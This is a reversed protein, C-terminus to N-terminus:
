IMGEAYRRFVYCPVASWGHCLSGAMHFDNAGNETEYLTTDGKIVMDGFTNKIDELVFGLYKKGSKLLADYAWVKNSLSLNILDKRKTLCSLLIDEAEPLCNTMLALAQPLQAYVSKKGNKNVAAFAQRENDYFMKKITEKIFPVKDGYVDSIKLASCMASMQQLTYLYLINLCSEYYLPLVNDRFILGGDLGEKWEYFNWYEKESFVPILGTTDRRSEFSEMIKQVVPLIKVAFKSDGTHRYNETFAIVYYLSFSPITVGVRAPFCLELLGDERLGEAMLRLNSQAYNNKEFVYYGFLMQNRSDMAYLSQERWPCDEYHEHMCNKLTRIGNRDIINFLGDRINFSRQRVVRETRLVRCDHLLMEGCPCCIQLYRLGLRRLYGCWVNRGRHARYTFAFNRDDIFSRVRLDLLHEGFAVMVDTDESVELDLCVYGSVEKGMDVIAYVGYSESKLRWGQANPLLAKEAFDNGMADLPKHKLFAESVTQAAAPYFKNFLVEGQACMVVRDDQSYRLREDPRLFMKCEKTVVTSRSFGDAAGNIWNDERTSDYLFTFGIQPSIKEIEGSKYCLDERSLVNEGSYAVIEGGCEIEFLVGAQERRYTSSDAGASWGLVALINKGVRCYQGISFEDYIKYAPYDPYQGSYVFKGNIFCAYNTDASIRLLAEKGSFSFVTLFDVYQNVKNEHLWIWQSKSFVPKM